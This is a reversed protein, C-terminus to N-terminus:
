LAFFLGIHGWAHWWKHSFEPSLVSQELEIGIGGWTINVAASSQTVIRSVSSSPITYPSTRNFFGGELTADYVVLRANGKFCLYVQTMRMGRAKLVRRKEIGLDSFYPNFWGLRLNLGGGINTYLTGLMSSANLILEIYSTNIIGKELSCNYNILADNKIQYEWGLPETNSPVSKHFWDQVAAGMSARGIVGLDLGSTLRFHHVQDNSIKFSKILLYASYPRDGYLIGSKKTTSPTYLNQLVSLGYHNKAASWYPLLIYKVPNDALAPAVLDFRIGNTYFQDTYDFIDNDLSIRLVRDSGLQIASQFLSDTSVKELIERNLPESFDVPIGTDRLWEINNLRISDTKRRTTNVSNSQVQNDPIRNGHQYQPYTVSAAVSKGKGSKGPEKDMIGIANLDGPNQRFGERTAGHLNDEGQRSIGQRPKDISAHWQQDAKKKESSCSFLIMILLICTELPKM